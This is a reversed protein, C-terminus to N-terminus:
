IYLAYLQEIVRAARSGPLFLVVGGHRRWL